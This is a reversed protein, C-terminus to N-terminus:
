RQRRVLDRPRPATGNVVGPHGKKFLESVAAAQIVDYGNLGSSTCIWKLAEVLEGIGTIPAGVNWKRAYADNQLLRRALRAVKRYTRGRLRDRRRKAKGKAEAREEDSVTVTTM